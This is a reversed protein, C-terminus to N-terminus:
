RNWPLVDQRVWLIIDEQVIRVPSERFLWWRLTEAVTMGQVQDERATGTRTAGLNLGNYGDIQPQAASAASVIAVTTTGPPVTEGWQLDNHHRLYWRLAPNDIASLLPLDFPGYGAQYSIESLMGALLRVGDHTAVTVLGARPDNAAEHTLWWATGWSYFGLLLLLGLVTGQFAGRADWSRVLNITVAAFAIVLAILVAYSRIDQQGAMLRVFRIGNFYVVLGTLLVFLLVGAATEGRGDRFLYQLWQGILFYAPLVLVLVNANTGPQALLFVFAALYWYVLLQPLPYARWIAWILAGAGLVLASLEYRGLLYLPTVLAPLDAPLSFAAVWRGLIAAAGGLGTPRWLFFTAFAVFSGSAILALRRWDLGRGDYGPFAPGFRRQAVAALLLALTGTYFLPSTTLGFGFAAAAAAPWLLGGGLRFRLAGLLVAVLALLAWSDGGATRAALAATPSIAILAATTLSGLLGLEARALWLVAVLLLGAIAPGFRVLTDAFAVKESGGLLALFPAATAFYAPSVLHASGRGADPEYWFDWAVLVSEAEEPGLPLASLETLRMAAALIFILLFLLTALSVGFVAVSTQAKTTERIKVSNEM